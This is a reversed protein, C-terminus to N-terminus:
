EKKDSNWVFATGSALNNSLFTLRADNRSILREQTIPVYTYAEPIAQITYTLEKSLGAVLIPIVERQPLNLQNDDKEAEDPSGCGYMSSDITGFTFAWNIPYTRLALNEGVPVYCWGTWEARLDGNHQIPLQCM